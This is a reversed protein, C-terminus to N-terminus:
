GLTATSRKPSPAGCVTSSIASDPRSTPSTPWCARRRHSTESAVTPRTSSCSRRGRAGVDGAPPAPAGRGPGRPGPAGSRRDAGKRVVVATTDVSASFQRGGDIWLGVPPADARLRSRVPEADRASLFSSPQVLAVVGGDAVRDVGALLFAAADDVYGGLEPWRRALEARRAPVAAPATACSPVSRHTASCSPRLVPRAVSGGPCRRGPDCRRAAARGAAWLRLSAETTAVALPDIDFGWMHHLREARDGGMAEVSPWCSSAAASRRTSSRTTTSSRGATASSSSSRRRWRQRRTTCEAAGGPGRRCSRRAPSGPCGPAPTPWFTPSSMSRRCRRPRSGGPQRRRRPRRRAALRAAVRAVIAAVAGAPNETEAAAVWRALAAAIRPDTPSPIGAPWTTSGSM